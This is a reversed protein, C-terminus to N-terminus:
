KQCIQIDQVTRDVTWFGFINLKSDYPGALYSMQSAPVM